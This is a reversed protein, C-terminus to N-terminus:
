WAQAPLDATILGSSTLAGVKVSGGTHTPLELSWQRWAGGLIRANVPIQKRHAGREVTLSRVQAYRDGVNEVRVCGGKRSTDNACPGIKLQAQARNSAAVFVPLHHNIRVNLAVDGTPVVTTASTVDEFVLRYAQERGTASGRLAVRFIQTGGAPIAAIPPAVILDDSPQYLDIGDVQTWAMTKTQYTVPQNSPNTFTISTIRHAPALEVVVPSISVAQAAAVSLVLAAAVGIRRLPAVVLRPFGLPRM